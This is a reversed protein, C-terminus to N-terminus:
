SAPVYIAVWAVDLDSEPSTSPGPPVEGFSNGAAYVEQQICLHMPMPQRNPMTAWSKGDLTFTLASDTVTVGWTHWQTLDVSPAPVESKYVHGGSRWHSFGYAQPAGMTESFDVEPPWTGSTSPWLLITGAVGNADSVRSRVLVEGTTFSVSALSVGGEVWPPEGAAGQYRLPDLYTRETLVGSSIAVHSPDWSGAPDAAPVGRYAFWRDDLTGGAFDSQYLTRYGSPSETGPLVGSPDPSASGAPGPPSSVALPAVEGSPGSPSASASGTTTAGRGHSAGTTMPPTKKGAGPLLPGRPSSALLLVVVLTTVVTGAAATRAVRALPRGSRAAAVLTAVLSRRISSPRTSEAM